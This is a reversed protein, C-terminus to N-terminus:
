PRAARPTAVNLGRERFHRFIDRLEQHSASLARISELTEVPVRNSERRWRSGRRAAMAAVGRQRSSSSASASAAEAAESDDEDNDGNALMQELVEDILFTLVSRRGVEELFAVNTERAAEDSWPREAGAVRALRRLEHPRMAERTVPDRTDGSAAVYAWLSYADLLVLTGGRLLRFPRRIPGLTIPDRERM